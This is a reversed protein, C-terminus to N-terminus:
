INKRKIIRKVGEFAWYLAFLIMLPFSVMAAKKLYLSHPMIEVLHEGPSINVAMWSLDSRYIKVPKKDIRIEWGPYYVESIRLFGDRPVSVSARRYNPTYKDWQVKLLKEPSVLTDASASSPKQDPEKMLAVSKRIDYKGSHLADIIQSSDLVVYGPAFSIRDLAGENKITLLQDGQRILYYRANALNLFANGNKLNEPVLYQRGDAMTGILNDFYNRDQQDGRFERYWRLENDHFGGVGELGHIGEGSQPLAGPL